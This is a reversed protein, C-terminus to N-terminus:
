EQETRLLEMYKRMKEIMWTPASFPKLEDLKLSDKYDDNAALDLIDQELLLYAMKGGTAKMHQQETLWQKDQPDAAYKFLEPHKIYIRGRTGEMGLAKNARSGLVFTTRVDLRAPDWKPGERKIPETAKFKLPTFGLSARDSSVTHGSPRGKRKKPVPSRRMSLDDEGHRARKISSSDLVPRPLGKEKDIFLVKAQELCNRCTEHILQEPDVQEGVNDRVNSAAKQFFKMYKDFVSKIEENISPQLVARLLDMSVAPDTFSVSVHSRRGRRQVQRHKIMVNWPNAAGPDEDGSHSLTEADKWAGM